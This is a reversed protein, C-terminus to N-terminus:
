VISVDKPLLWKRIVFRKLSLRRKRILWSLGRRAGVAHGMGNGPGSDMPGALGSSGVAPRAADSITGVAGM